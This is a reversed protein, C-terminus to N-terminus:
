RLMGPWKTSWLVRAAEAPDDSLQIKLRDVVKQVRRVGHLVSTHDKNGIRRGIEPLSHPLFTRCVFFLIHRAKCIELMRRESRLDTYSIGTVNAVVSTMKRVPHPAFKDVDQPVAAKPPIFGQREIKPEPWAELAPAEETLMKAEPRRAFMRARLAAAERRMQDADTYERVPLPAGTAM